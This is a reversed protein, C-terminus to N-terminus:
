VQPKRKCHISYFIISYLPISFLAQYWTRLVFIGVHMQHVMVTGFTIEMDIDTGRQKQRDVPRNLEKQLAQRDTLREAKERSV